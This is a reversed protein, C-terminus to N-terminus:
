EDYIIVWSSIFSFTADSGHETELHASQARSWDLSWLPHSSSPPWGGTTCRAWPEYYGPWLDALSHLNCLARDLNMESVSNEASNYVLTFHKRQLFAVFCAQLRHNRFYGGELVNLSFCSKIKIRVTHTPTCPNLGDGRSRNKSFWSYWSVSQISDFFLTQYFEVREEVM